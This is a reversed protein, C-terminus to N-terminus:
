FGRSKAKCHDLSCNRLAEKEEKEIKMWDVTDETTELTASYKNICQQQETILDWTMGLRQLGMSHLM